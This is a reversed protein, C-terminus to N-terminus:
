FTSHTGKLKRSSGSSMVADSGLSAIGGHWPRQNPHRGSLLTLDTLISAHPLQM